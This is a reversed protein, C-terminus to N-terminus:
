IYCQYIGKIKWPFIKRVYNFVMKDGLIDEGHHTVYTEMDMIGEDGIESINNNLKVVTNDEMIFEVVKETDEFFVTIFSYDHNWKFYEWLTIDMPITTTYIDVQKPFATPISKTWEMDESLIKRITEKVGIFIVCNV